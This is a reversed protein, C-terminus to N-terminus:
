LRNVQMYFMEVFTNTLPCIISTYFKWFILGVSL